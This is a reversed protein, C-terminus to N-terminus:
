QFKSTDISITPNTRFSKSPTILLKGRKIGDKWNIDIHLISDNEVVWNLQSCGVFYFDDETHLEPISIVIAQIESDFPNQYQYYEYNPSISKRLEKGWTSGLTITSTIFTNLSCGLSIFYSGIVVNNEPVFTQVFLLSDTLFLIRATDMGSAQLLYNRSSPLLSGKLMSYVDIADASLWGHYKEVIIRFTKNETSPVDFICLYMVLWWSCFFIVFSMCVVCWFVLTRRKIILLSLNIRMMNTRLLCGMQGYKQGVRYYETQQQYGWSM